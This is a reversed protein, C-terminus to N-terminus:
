RFIALLVWEGTTAVPLSKIHEDRARTDKVGFAVYTLPDEKSAELSRLQFESSTQDDEIKGILNDKQM